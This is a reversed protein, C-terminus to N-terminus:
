GNNGCVAVLNAVLVIETRADAKSVVDVTVALGRDAAAIANVETAHNIRRDVVRKDIRTQAGVHRLSLNRDGCRIGNRRNVRIQNGRSGQRCRRHLVEGVVELKRPNVLKVRHELALYGM